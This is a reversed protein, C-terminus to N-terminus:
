LLNFSGSLLVVWSHVSCFDQRPVTHIRRCLCPGHQVRTSRSKLLKLYQCGDHLSTQISKFLDNQGAVRCQIFVVDMSLKGESHELAGGRLQTPARLIGPSLFPSKQELLGPLLLTRGGYSQQVANKHSCKLASMNVKKLSLEKKNKESNQQPIIYPICFQLLVFLTFMKFVPCVERFFFVTSFFSEVLSLSHSLFDWTYTHMYTYGCSM